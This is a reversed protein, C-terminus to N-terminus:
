TEDCTHKGRRLGSSRVVGHFLNRGVINGSEAIKESQYAKQCLNVPNKIRYVYYM